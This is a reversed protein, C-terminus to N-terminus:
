CVACIFYQLRLPLEVKAAPKNHWAACSALPPFFYCCTLSAAFLLKIGNMIGYEM